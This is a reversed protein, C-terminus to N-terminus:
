KTNIMMTGYLCLDMKKNNYTLLVTTFGSEKLGSDNIPIDYTEAESMKEIGCSRTTVKLNVRQSVAASTNVVFKKSVLRKRLLCGPLHASIEM